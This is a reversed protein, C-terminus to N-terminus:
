APQWKRPGREPRGEARAKRWQHMRQTALRCERCMRGGPVLVLNEGALEHGRKCHTKRHHERKHASAEVPMLHSPNVCHKVECRHHLHLGAPIPGELAMYIARHAKISKGNRWAVGYGRGDKNPWLWCGDRPPGEAVFRELATM